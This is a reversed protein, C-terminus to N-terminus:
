PNEAIAEEVVHEGDAVQNPLTFGLPPANEAPNSLQAPEPCPAYQPSPEERALGDPLPVTAPGSPM